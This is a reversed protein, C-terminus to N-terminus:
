EPIDDEEVANENRELAMEFGGVAQTVTARLDVIPAETADLRLDNDYPDISREETTRVLIAASQVSSEERKDGGDAHRAALAEILRDALPRIVDELMGVALDDDLYAM